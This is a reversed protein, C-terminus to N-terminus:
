SGFETIVGLDGAGANAGTAKMLVRRYPANRIGSCAYVDWATAGVGVSLDWEFATTNDSLRTSSITKWNVASADTPNLGDQSIQIKFNIGTFGGGAAEVAKAFYTTGTLRGIAQKAVEMVRGDSYAPRVAYSTTLAPTTTSSQSAVIFSIDASM